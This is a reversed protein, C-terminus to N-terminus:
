RGFEHKCAPCSASKFLPGYLRADMAAEWLWKSNCKGCRIALLALAYAGILIVTGWTWSIGLPPYLPAFSGILMVVVALAFKWFQGSRKIVSQNMM